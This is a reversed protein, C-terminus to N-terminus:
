QEQWHTVLDRLAEQGAKEEKFKYGCNWNYVAIFRCDRFRLTRGFHELWGTKDPAGWWWEAAAWRTRGCQDLERSLQGIENPDQGYFSWAPAAWDNFAARFPIHVGWPPYTGGQHVYILSKPIGCECVARALAALYQQTVHALDDRTLKGTNKIGATKVAAQLKYM